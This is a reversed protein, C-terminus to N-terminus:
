TRTISTIHNTWLGRPRILESYVVSDGEFVTKRGEEGPLASWHFFVDEGEPNTIFGFGKDKNYWKVIGVRVKTEAM